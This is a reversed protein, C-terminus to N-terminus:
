LPLFSLRRFNTLHSSALLVQGESWLLSNPTRVVFRDRNEDKDYAVYASYEGVADQWDHDSVVDDSSLPSQTLIADINDVKYAWLLNYFYELSCANPEGNEYWDGNQHYIFITFGRPHDLKFIRDKIPAGEHMFSQTFQDLNM